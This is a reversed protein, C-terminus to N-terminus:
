KIRPDFLALRVHPLCSQTKGLPVLQCKLILTFRDPFLLPFELPFPFGPFSLRTKSYSAFLYYFFTQPKVITISTVQLRTFKFALFLPTQIVKCHPIGLGWQWLASLDEWSGSTLPHNNTTVQEVSLKNTIVTKVLHLISQKLSLIEGYFFLVMECYKNM